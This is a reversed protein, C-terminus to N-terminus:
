NGTPSLHDNFYTGVQNVFSSIAKASKPGRDDIAIDILSHLITSVSIRKLLLTDKTYMNVARKFMSNITATDEPGQSKFDHLISM